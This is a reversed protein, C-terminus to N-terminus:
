LRSGPLVVSLVTQWRCVCHFVMYAKYPLVRNSTVAVSFAFVAM